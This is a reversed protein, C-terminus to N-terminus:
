GKVASQWKLGVACCGTLGRRGLYLLPFSILTLFVSM